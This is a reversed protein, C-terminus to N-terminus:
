TQRHLLSAALERLHSQAANEIGAEDLSTLALRYYEEAMNEAYQRAGLRDLLRLAAQIAPPDLEALGPMSSPWSGLQM